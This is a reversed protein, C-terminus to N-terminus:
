RAGARNETLDPPPAKRSITAIVMAALWRFLTPLVIMISALLKGFDADAFGESFVRYLFTAEPIAVLLFAVWATKLFSSTVVWGILMVITMLILVFSAPFILFSLTDM